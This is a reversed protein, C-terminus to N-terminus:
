KKCVTLNTIKDAVAAKGGLVMIKKPKLSKVYAVAKAPLCEGKVLLMPGPKVKLLSGVSLADPFNEGTTFYVTNASTSFGEKAVELSTEYRTPGALRVVELGKAKLQNVVSPNLADTGGVLYANKAGLRSIEKMTLEDISKGNSLLVPSLKANFLSSASLADPFNLGSAIIVSESRTFAKSASIATEYRTKGAVRDVKDSYSKLQEALSSSVVSEGGLIVIQSPNLRQLEAKISEPITDKDILLLPRGAKAATAGGALADPFNRGTAIFVKGGPTFESSILASTDYRTLGGVRKPAPPVFERPEKSPEEKNPEEIPSADVVKVTFNVEYKISKPNGESDTGNADNATFTFKKTGLTSCKAKGSAGDYSCGSSSTPNTIADGNIKLVKPISFGSGAYVQGLDISQGTFDGDDLADPLASFDAIHNSDLAVNKLSNLGAVGEPLESLENNSVYLRVLNPTGTLDLKKLKAAGLEGSNDITLEELKSAQTLDLQEVGTDVLSLSKLNKVNTLKTFNKSNVELIELGTLGELDLEEKNTKGSIYLKTLKESNEFNPFDQDTVYLEKLNKLNEKLDLSKVGTFVLSLEQLNSANSLTTFKKGSVTLSTLNDLDALDLSELNTQFAFLKTLEGGGVLEPFDQQSIMLETLNQLGGINLKGTIGTNSLGLKKLKEANELKVFESGGVTLDDLKSFNALNLETIKTSEIHLTKLYNSSISPFEQFGVSLYKLETANSLDLETIKTDTLELHVLNNIGTLTTLESDSIHLEEISTLDELSIEQSLGHFHVEKLNTAKGLDAIGVGDWRCDLLKLSQLDNESVDQTEPERNLSNNVCRKLTDNTIVNGSAIAFTSNSVALTAAGVM